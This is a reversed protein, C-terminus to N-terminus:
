RLWLCEYDENQYFRSDLAALVEGSHRHKGISWVWQETSADCYDKNDNFVGPPLRYISGGADSAEKYQSLDIARGTVIDREMAINAMRKPPPNDLAIFGEFRPGKYFPGGHRKSLIERSVLQALHRYATTSGIGFRQMFQEKTQDGHEKIVRAYRMLHEDPKKM